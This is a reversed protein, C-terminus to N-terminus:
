QGGGMFFVYVSIVVLRTPEEAVIPMVQKTEYRKGKWVAGYPFNKRFASRGQKAPIREGLQVAQEVEERTAGRDGMNDLAHRSFVVPKM